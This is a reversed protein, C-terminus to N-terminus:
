LGQKRCYGCETKVEEADFSLLDVLFASSCNGLQNVYRDGSDTDAILLIPVTDLYGCQVTDLYGCQVTDYDGYPVTYLYVM